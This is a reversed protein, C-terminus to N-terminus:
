STDAEMLQRRRVKLPGTAVIVKNDPSLPDIGAKLEEYLLRGYGKGGIFKEYFGKPLEEEITKLKSLSVRLIKGVYGGYEGKLVTWKAEIEVESCGRNLTIITALAHGM